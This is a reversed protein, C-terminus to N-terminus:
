AKEERACPTKNRADQASHGVEVSREAGPQRIMRQWTWYEGVEQKFGLGEHLHRSPGNDDDILVKATRVGMCQLSWLTQRVLWTAIGMRRADPIVGLEVITAEDPNANPSGAVGCLAFGVAKNDLFAISWLPTSAALGAWERLEELTQQASLPSERQVRDLTGEQSAEFLSSLYEPPLEQCPRRELALAPASEPPPLGALELTYLHSAAVEHLEARLLEPLLVKLDPSDHAPKTEIFRVLPTTLAREVCSGLLLRTLKRRTRLREGERHHIAWFTLRGSKTIYGGIKARVNGDKDLAVSRFPEKLEDATILERLRSVAADRDAPPPGAEFWRDLGVARLDRVEFM